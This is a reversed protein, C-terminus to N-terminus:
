PKVSLPQSPFDRRRVWIFTGVAMSHDVQRTFIKLGNNNSQGGLVCDQVVDFVFESDFREFKTIIGAANNVRVVSVDDFYGGHYISQNLYPIGDCIQRVTELGGPWLLARCEEGCGHFSTGVTDPM